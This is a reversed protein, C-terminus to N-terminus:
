RAAIQPADVALKAITNHTNVLSFAFAMSTQSIAEAVAMKCRYSFGLGGHSVPVQIANLKADAAAQYLEPSFRGESEAQALVPEVERRAFHNASDVLQREDESLESLIDAPM